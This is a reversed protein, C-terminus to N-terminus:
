TTRKEKYGTDRGPVLNGTWARKKKTHKEAENEIPSIEPLIGQEVMQLRLRLIDQLSKVTVPPLINGDHDRGKYIQVEMKNTLVKTWGWNAETKLATAAKHLQALAPCLHPRAFMKKNKTATGDLNTLGIDSVTLSSERILNLMEQAHAKSEFVAVVPGNPVPSIRHAVVVKYDVNLAKVIKAVKVETEIRKEGAAGPIDYFVINNARSQQEQKDLRLTVQQLDKKLNENEKKLEDVERRLQSVMSDLKHHLQQQGEFLRNIGEM